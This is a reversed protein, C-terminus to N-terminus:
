GDSADDQGARAIRVLVIPRGAVSARLERRVAERVRRETSRGIGAGPGLERSVAAELRGPLQADM